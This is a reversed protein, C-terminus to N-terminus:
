DLALGKEAREGALRHIVTVRRVVDVMCTHDSSLHSVRGRNPRGRGVRALRSLSHVPDPHTMGSIM